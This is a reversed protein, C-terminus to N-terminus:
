KREAAEPAPKDIGARVAQKIAGQKSPKNKLWELIDADTKKNLKLSFRVTNEASYKEQPAYKQM